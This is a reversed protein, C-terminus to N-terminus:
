KYIWTVLINKMIKHGPEICHSKAESSLLILLSFLSLFSIDSDATSLILHPWVQVRCDCFVNEFVKGKLDWDCVSISCLLYRKPFVANKWGKPVVSFQLSQTVPISGQCWTAPTFPVSCPGLVKGGSLVNSSFYLVSGLLSRCVM